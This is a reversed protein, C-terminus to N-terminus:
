KIKFLITGAIVFTVGVWHNWETDIKENLIGFKDMAFAALVQGCILLIITTSIGLKPITWITAVLYIFAFVGGLWLYPPLSGININPILSSSTMFFLIFMLIAAILASIGGVFYTSGIITAFRSNIAGQLPIAAGTLVCILVAIYSNM